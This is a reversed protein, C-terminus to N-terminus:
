AVPSYSVVEESPRIRMEVLGKPQRTSHYVKVSAVVTNNRLDLDEIVGEDGKRVALQPIDRCIPLLDYEQYRPTGVRSGASAEM